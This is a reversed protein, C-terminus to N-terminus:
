CIIYINQIVTQLMLLSNLFGFEKLVKDLNEFDEKIGVSLAIHSTNKLVKLNNLKKLTM